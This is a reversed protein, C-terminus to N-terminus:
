LWLSVPSGLQETFVRDVLDALTEKSVACFWQGDENHLHYGGSRAAIWIEGNARQRSFIASSGNPFTVTLVGGGSDIDFDGELEDVAAEVQGFIEEVADDFEREDV